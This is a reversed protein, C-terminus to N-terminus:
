SVLACLNPLKGLSVCRFASNSVTGEVGAGERGGDWVPLGSGRPVSSPAWAQDEGGMHLFGWVPKLLLLGCALPSTEWVGKPLHIFPGM